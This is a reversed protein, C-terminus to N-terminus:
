WRSGFGGGGGGGWSNGGGGSGDFRGRKLGGNGMGASDRKMGGGGGGYRPGRSSYGGSDTAMSRLREPVKQMAEELVKILDAAKPGNSPTFFTYSTGQFHRAIMSYGRAHLSELGSVKMDRRGTRGIRHVYDESNNPYDYNIM